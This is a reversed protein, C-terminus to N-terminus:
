RGYSQKIGAYIGPANPGGKKVHNIDGYPHMYGNRGKSSRDQANDKHTGLFLHEPNVCSPNDCKHLVCMGIPIDGRNLMWSIRHTSGARGNYNSKGYGWMDIHGTWIWCNGTKDIKANFREPFPPLAKARLKVNEISLCGCSKTKGSKLSDALISKKNGCECVCMCIKGGHKTKGIVELVTLRNFVRGTLDIATKM